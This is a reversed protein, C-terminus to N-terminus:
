AFTRVLDLVADGDPGETRLATAAPNVRRGAVLCLDDVPGRVITSAPSDPLFTWATGGPGDLEFAVPGALTRGARAFAYPLTRWALRAIHHLRDAPEPVVGFAYAVDGTHIWAEALRTTALTRASLEGAVWQVRRSPEISVLARRLDGGVTLWREHIDAASMGRGSAVLLAAGEDVDAARAFAGAVADIHAAFRDELSAIAMEDTQSLHLVVDAVTWGDCRSSRPWDDIDLDALIGALEAHQEALAAVIEEM